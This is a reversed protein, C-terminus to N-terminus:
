VEGFYKEILSGIMDDAKSAESLVQSFNSVVANYLERITCFEPCHGYEAEFEKMALLVNVAQLFNMYKSEGTDVNQNDLPIYTRVVGLIFNIGSASGLFSRCVAPVGLLFIRCNTEYVDSDDSEGLDQVYAHIAEMSFELPIQRLMDDLGVWDPTSKGAINDAVYQSVRTALEQKRVDLGQCSDYQEM